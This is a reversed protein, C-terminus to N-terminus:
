CEIAEELTFKKDYLAKGIILGNIGASKVKKVDALSGIGGSAIVQMDSLKVMEVTTDIDNGTGMGDTDINTYIITAAGISSLKKIFENLQIGSNSQWGRTMLKRNKADLGFVIKERGFKKIAQKAFDINEIIATGLIVRNIGASLVKDISALDRIGGGLQISIKNKTAIIIQNIADWNLKTNDGFAGDLNVLHLWKAGAELWNNAVVKADNSYTTQNNPNGKRLRVVIGERLDIAPYITFNTM